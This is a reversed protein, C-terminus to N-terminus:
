ISDPLNNSIYGAVVLALGYRDDAMATYDSYQKSIINRNCAWSILLTKYQSLVATEQQGSCFSVEGNIVKVVIGVQGCLYASKV